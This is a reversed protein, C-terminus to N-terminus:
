QKSFCKSFRVRICGLLESLLFYIFLANERRVKFIVNLFFAWCDGLGEQGSEPSNKKRKGKLSLAEPPNPTTIGTCFFGTCGRHGKRLINLLGLPQSISDGALWCKTTTPSWLVARVSVREQHLAKGRAHICGYFSYRHQSGEGKEPWLSKALALDLKYDPRCPSICEGPARQHGTIGTRTGSAQGLYLHKQCLPCGARLADMSSPAGYISGM